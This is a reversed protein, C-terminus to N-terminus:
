LQQHSFKWDLGVVVIGLLGMNTLAELIPPSRAGYIITLHPFHNTCYHFLTFAKIPVKLFSATTPTVHQSNWGM